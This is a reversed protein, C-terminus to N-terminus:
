VNGGGQVTFLAYDYGTNKVTTSYVVKLRNPVVIKREKSMGSVTLKGPGIPDAMIWQAGHDGDDYAIGIGVSEGADLVYPGDASGVGNFGM